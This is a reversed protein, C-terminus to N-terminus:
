SATASWRCPPATSRWGACARTAALAAVAVGLTVFGMHNVSTYAVLRKM